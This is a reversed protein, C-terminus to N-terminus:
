PEVPMLPPDGPEAFTALTVSVAFTERIATAAREFEAQADALEREAAHLREVARQLGRWPMDDRRPVTALPRLRDARVSHTDRETWNSM